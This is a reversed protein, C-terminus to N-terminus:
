FGAGGAIIRTLLGTMVGQGVETVGERLRELRTREEGSTSEIQADLAQLLQAFAAEGSTAPWGALLQLAKETPECFAPGTAQEYDLTKRVYDARELAHLALGTKEDKEGRGLEQNIAAQSIGTDSPRNSYARYVAELVPWMETKWDMPMGAPVVAVGSEARAQRDLEAIAAYGEGTVRIPGSHGKSGYSLSILGQADLEELDGKSVKDISLADHILGTGGSSEHWIIHEKEGTSSDPQAYADAMARLLQAQDKTLFMNGVTAGFDSVM